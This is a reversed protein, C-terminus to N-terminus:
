ARGGGGGVALGSDMGTGGLFGPLGVGAQLGLQKPLYPMAGVGM